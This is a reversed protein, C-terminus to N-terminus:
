FFFILLVSEEFPLMRFTWYTFCTFVSSKLELLPHPCLPLTHLTPLKDLRERLERECAIPPSWSAQKSLGEGLAFDRLLMM